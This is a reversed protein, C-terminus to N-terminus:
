SCMLVMMRPAKKKVEVVKFGKEKLGKDAEMVKM